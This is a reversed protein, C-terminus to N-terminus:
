TAGWLRRVVLFGGVALGIILTGALLWASSPMPAALAASASDQVPDTAPSTEGINSAVIAVGHSSLFAAFEAQVGDRAYYWGAPYDPGADHPFYLYGNGTAAPYYEIRLENLVGGEEILVVSLSYGREFGSPEPEIAANSDRMFMRELMQRHSSGDPPVVIDEDIGPGSITIDGPEKAWAVVVGAHIVLLILMITTLRRMM